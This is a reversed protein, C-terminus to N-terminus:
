ILMDALDVGGMGVNDLKIIQPCNIAIKKCEKPCWREVSGM